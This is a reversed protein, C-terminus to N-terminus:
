KKCHMAECTSVNTHLVSLVTTNIFCTNKRQKELICVHKKHKLLYSTTVHCHCKLYISISM